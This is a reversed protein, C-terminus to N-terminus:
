IDQGCLRKPVKFAFTGAGTAGILVQVQGNACRLGVEIPDPQEEPAKFSACATLSAVAVLLALRPAYWWPRFTDEPPTPLQINTM